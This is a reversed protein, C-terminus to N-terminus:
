SRERERERERKYISGFTIDFLIHNKLMNSRADKAWQHDYCFTPEIDEDDDLSIVDDGDYNSAIVLWWDSCLMDRGTEEQTAKDRNQTDDWMIFGDETIQKLHGEMWPQKRLRLVHRKLSFVFISRAVKRKYEDEPMGHNTGLYQQLIQRGGETFQLGVGKTGYQNILNSTWSYSDNPNSHKLEFFIIFNKHEDELDRRQWVAQRTTGAGQNDLFLEQSVPESTMYAFMALMLILGLLIDM